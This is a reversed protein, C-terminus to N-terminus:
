IKAKKVKPFNNANLKAQQHCHRCLATYEKKDGVLIQADLPRPTYHATFSAVAGCNTCIAKLKTVQEAYVLLKMMPVFPRGFSDM